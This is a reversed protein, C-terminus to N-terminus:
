NEIIDASFDKAQLPAGTAHITLAKWDMSKGPEFVKEKLFKGVEKHGTYIASAPPEHLVQNAITHHLQSSFLEGMLYNHYYAPAVAIHIKSLYDPQHRDTPAKIGQYKEVLDWWLKGLDQDPKQYMGKEFRFMVQCWRSFILKEMRLMKKGLSDWKEKNAIKAGMSDLWSGSKSFKQFMMAIGETTLLHSETRLLYPLSHSINLSSYVSHGLEHLMTSMWYESPVINALVRVDGERDIDTCFAHPSKGKKEYLDSKKLVNEVPLGIGKYFVKSLKIADADKYLSDFNSDFINPVEQFFPDSYHWPALKEPPTSFRTALVADIEKKTKLFPERTLTDLSDFLETVEKLDQEGLFFQLSYYDSFGLKKAAQNRLNVLTKFDAELVKGVSKSAEWVSKREVDSVSEKLTKRIGSDTFETTGVKARFTNFEKEIKNSLANLETIMKPDIQKELYQRYLLEIQRKVTPSTIQSQSDRLFNLKKFAKPNSLEQALPTRLLFQGM